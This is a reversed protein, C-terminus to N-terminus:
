NPKLAPTVTKSVTNCDGVTTDDDSGENGIHSHGATTVITICFGVNAENWSVTQQIAGSSDSAVGEVSAARRRQPSTLFNEDDSSSGSIELSARQDPTAERSVAEQPWPPNNGADLYLPHDIAQPIAQRIATIWTEQEDADLASMERYKSKNRKDPAYLSIGFHLRKSVSIACSNCIANKLYIAGSRRGLTSGSWVDLKWKHVDDYYVLFSPYLVFFRRKLLTSFSGKKFLTGKLLPNELSFKFIDAM